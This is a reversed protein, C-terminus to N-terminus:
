GAPAEADPVHMWYGLKQGEVEKKMRKAGQGGFASALGFAFVM